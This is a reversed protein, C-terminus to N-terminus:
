GNTITTATVAAPTAATISKPVASANTGLKSESEDYEDFFSENAFRFSVDILKM